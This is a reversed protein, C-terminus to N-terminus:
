SDKPAEANEKSSAGANEIEDAGAGVEAPSAEPDAEKAAEKAAEAPAQVPAPPPAALKPKPACDYAVTIQKPVLWCPDGGMNNNDVKLKCEKQGKCKKDILAKVDKKCM